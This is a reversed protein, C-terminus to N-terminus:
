RAQPTRSVNGMASMSDYGVAPQVVGPFGGLSNSSWFTGAGPGRRQLPCAGGFLGFNSNVLGLQAHGAGVFLGPGSGVIAAPGSAVYLGSDSTDQILSIGGLSPGSGVLIRPLGVSEARAESSPALLNGFGSGALQAHSAPADQTAPFPTKLVLPSSRHTEQANSSDSAQMPPLTEHHMSDHTRKYPHSQSRDSRSDHRRASDKRAVDVAHSQNSHRARASKTADDILFGSGYTIVGNSKLSADEITESKFASTGGSQGPVFVHPGSATYPAARLHGGPLIAM